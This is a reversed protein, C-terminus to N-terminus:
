KLLTPLLIQIQSYNDVKNKTARRGGTIENNKWINDTTIYLESVGKNRAEKYINNNRNEWM